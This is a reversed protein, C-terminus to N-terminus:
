TAVWLALPSHSRNAESRCTFFVMRRHKKTRQELLPVVCICLPCAGFHGEGFWGSNQSAPIRYANWYETSRRPSFWASNGGARTIRMLFDCQDNITLVPQTVMTTAVSCTCRAVKRRSDCRPAACQWTSIWVCMYITCVCMYLIYMYTCVCMYIYYIYIIPYLIITYTYVSNYVTYLQIYPSWASSPRFNCRALHSSMTPGPSARPSRDQGPWHRAITDMFVHFVYACM